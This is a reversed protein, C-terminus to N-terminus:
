ANEEKRIPQRVFQILLISLSTRLMYKVSNWFSLYSSGAMREKMTVLCESIKFGSRLLYAITDPEPTLDHRVAFLEILRRNYMRMGSTPDTLLQGTTLKLMSRILLSGINRPSFSMPQGLFRSGVLIDAKTRTIAELMPTIYQPLHQGDADFQMACAYNHALAYQMGATFAGALGQNFPLNIVPADMERAIQLTRDTSGDNVLVFDYPQSRLMQITACLSAEENYAPIILLLDTM